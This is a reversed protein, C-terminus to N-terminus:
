KTISVKREVSLGLSLASSPRACHWPGSCSGGGLFSLAGPPPSRASSDALNGDVGFSLGGWETKVILSGIKFKMM